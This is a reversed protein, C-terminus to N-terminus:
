DCRIYSRTTDSIQYSLKKGSADLALTHTEAVIQGGALRQTHLVLIGARSEDASTIVARGEHSRVAGPAIAIRTLSESATCDKRDIAWVFRYPLPVVGPTTQSTPLEEGLDPTKFYSGSLEDPLSVPESAPARPPASANAQQSTAVEPPPSAANDCAVLLLAVIALPPALQSM